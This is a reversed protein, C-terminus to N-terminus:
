LGRQFVETQDINGDIIVLEKETVRLIRDVSTYGIPLISPASSAEVTCYMHHDKYEWVGSFTNEGMSGDALSFGIHLNYRAGPLFSVQVEQASTDPNVVFKSWSGLLLSSTARSDSLDVDM